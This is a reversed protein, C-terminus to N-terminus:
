THAHREGSMGGGGTSAPGTSVADPPHVVSWGDATRRILGEDHLNELFSTLDQRHEGGALAEHMLFATYKSTDMYKNKVNESGKWVVLVSLSVFLVLLLSRSASFDEYTHDFFSLTFGVAFLLLFFVACLLSLSLIDPVIRAQRIREYEAPHKTRLYVEQLERAVRRYRQRYAKSTDHRDVAIGSARVIRAELDRKLDLRRFLKIILWSLRYARTVHLLLGFVLSCLLVFASRSAFEQESEPFLLMLPAWVVFLYFVLGSIMFRSLTHVLFDRIDQADM